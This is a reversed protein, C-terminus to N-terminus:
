VNNRRQAAVARCTVTKDDTELPCDRLRRSEDRIALVPCPAKRMVEEAVSGLVLREIGTRGHSGMVILDCDRDSAVQVIARAATEHDVVIRELSIGQETPEIAALARELSCYEDTLEAGIGAFAGMQVPRTVVGLVILKAKYDRAFGCAIEFAHEANTSLDTPHLIRHISLM